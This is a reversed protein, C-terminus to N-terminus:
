APWSEATETRWASTTRATDEDQKVTQTELWTLTWAGQKPDFVYKFLALRRALLEQENMTVAENGGVLPLTAGDKQVAMVDGGDILATVAAVSRFREVLLKGLHSPYGDYHCYILRYEDEGTKIAIHAATGM